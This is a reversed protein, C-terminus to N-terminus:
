EPKSKKHKVSGDLSISGNLYWHPKGWNGGKHTWDVGISFGSSFLESFYTTGYPKDMLAYCIGVMHKPNSTFSGYYYPTIASRAGIKKLNTENAESIKYPSFFSPAFSFLLQNVRKYDGIKGNVKDAIQFINEDVYPTSALDQFADLDNYNNTNKFTTTLSLIYFKHFNNLKGSASFTSPYKTTFSKDNTNYFIRKNDYKYAVSASFGLGSVILKDTNIKDIGKLFGLEFEFSPNELKQLFNNENTVKLNTYMGYSTSLTEEDKSLLSDAKFVKDDDNEIYFLVSLSNFMGWSFQTSFQTSKESIKSDIKFQKAKEIYLIGDGNSNSLVQSYSYSGICILILLFVTKM